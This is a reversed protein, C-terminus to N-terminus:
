QQIRERVRGRSSRRWYSASFRRVVAQCQSKIALLCRPALSMRGHQLGRDVVFGMLSLQCHDVRILSVLSSDVFRDLNSHYNEGLIM